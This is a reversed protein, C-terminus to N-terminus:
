KLMNITCIYMLTAVNIDFDRYAHYSVKKMQYPELQRRPPPGQTPKQIKKGKCVMGKPLSKGM